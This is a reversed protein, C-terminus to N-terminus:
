GFQQGEEEKEEGYYMMNNENITQEVYESVFKDFKAAGDYLFSVQIPLVAVTVGWEKMKQAHLHLRTADKETTLIIKEQVDWNDYASKIEEMDGSLFYHHDKYSLVHVDTALSELHQILPQPKAIGCVLIVSKNDISVTQRTFVDYATGYDIKTFFLNQHAHPAIKQKIEDAQAESLNPPCKSVIITDARKYASRNERLNGMPLIRDTYFPKAYDTILMNLGPKVSRHQFADDLLVVEVYPTKQLLMPIGIMREEAVSVVLEPFKMHYQMPEDGIKLANTEFDALLFGQTRRKYGRSMTAVRYRYQLLRILYEIHPTKGTGGVSLNGVSIVPVSFEVSSFFGSDYLRNRLWLVAGYVLALPYLLVRVVSFM